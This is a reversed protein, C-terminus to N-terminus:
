LNDLTSCNLIFRMERRRSAVVGNNAMAASLVTVVVRVTMITLALARGADSEGGAFAAAVVVEVLLVAAVTDADTLEFDFKAAGVFAGRAIPSAAANPAITRTM